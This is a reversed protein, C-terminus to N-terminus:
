KRDSGIGEPTSSMTGDGVAGAENEWRDIQRWLNNTVPSAEVV